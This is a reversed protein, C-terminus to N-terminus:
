NINVYLWTQPAASTILISAPFVPATQRRTPSPATGQQFVYNLRQKLRENSVQM